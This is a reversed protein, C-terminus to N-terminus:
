YGSIEFSDSVFDPSIASRFPDVSLSYVKPVPVKGTKSVMDIIKYEREIAHATNSVLKGSPKKRLVYKFGNADTVFYTPNSFDCITQIRRHVMLLKDGQRTSASHSTFMRNVLHSNNFLQRLKSAPSM